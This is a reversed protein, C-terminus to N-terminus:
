MGEEVERKFVIAIGNTKINRRIVAHLEGNSSDFVEATSAEYHNLQMHEVCHLVANNAYTATNNKVLKKGLYYTTQINRTM